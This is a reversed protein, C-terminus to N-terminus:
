VPRAKDLGQLLSRVGLAIAFFRRHVRTRGTSPATFGDHLRDFIFSTLVFHGRDTVHIGRGRHQHEFVSRVHAYHVASTRIVVIFAMDNYDCVEISRQIFIFLIINTNDDPSTKPRRM